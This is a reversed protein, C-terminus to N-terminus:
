LYRLKRTAWAAYVTSMAGIFLSIAIANPGDRTPESADEPASTDGSGAGASVGGHGVGVDLSKGPELIAFIIMNIFTGVFQPLTTFINLIGFYIGSLEGSAKVEPAHMPDEASLMEIDDEDEGDINDDNHSVRRYQPPTSAGDTSMRNVEVGLLAVPAWMAITWPLGCLCVLLTAFRYSTAFPALSMAASFVLHGFIWTTLINPRYKGLRAVFGSMSQPMWPTASKRDPSEVLLPLVFASTFTIMSTIVMSTSGIRGMDGLMDGSAVADKPVDYRFYTEGIWTTGYFMYPFWGLWSWFQARCIAQVRPPMNLITSWIQRFIQFHGKVDSPPAAVLVRETVAWCTIGNTVVMFVMAIITLQKFQTDGMWEGFIGVLDAAGLGYGVVHGVSSMRSFWAAGTQQKDVTLTDVILSRSCSMVANIAFDVAYIALVALAITPGKAKEEDAQVLGVIEKTFGLVFLCVAVMATSLLMLPRRRGYKSTSADALAGVVPQVILGSLPGAIWVLSTNSKTLGLDLLYPTCYTMEIGWTFTIGIAGFTLLAMQATESGGRVGPTGTWTAM